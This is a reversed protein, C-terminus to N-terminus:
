RQETDSTVERERELEGVEAREYELGRKCELERTNM